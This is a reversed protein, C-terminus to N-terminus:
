FSNKIFKYAYSKNNEDTLKVIYLGADIKQVDIKKLNEDEFKQIMKGQLDYVVAKKIISNETKFELYSSAPNPSITIHMLNFDEVGFNEGGDLGYVRSSNTINLNGNNNHMYVILKKSLNPLKSLYIGSANPINLLSIGDENIINSDYYGGNLTCSSSSYILKLGSDNSILNEILQVSIVSGYDTFPTPTPITKWITHDSNYIITQPLSQIQPCEIGKRDYYKEGSIELKVREISGDYTHELALNPCNYISTQIPEPSESYNQTFLKNPLGELISMGINVANDVTLLVIGNENIIKVQSSPNQGNNYYGYGIELLNDENIENQSLISIGSYSYGDPKTLTINKWFSHDSNYITLIGTTTNFNYYKEGDNELIIRKTEREVYTHELVLEPVSYVNCETSSKSIIKSPLGQQDDMSLSYSNDVTLLVTGEENIIKSQRFNPASYTNYIVELLNDSNLKKESVHTVGISYNNEPIPLVISKWFTHNANYFDIKHNTYDVFYYKEGSNELVIRTAFGNYYTHEYTIQGSVITSFFLVFFLLKQQM